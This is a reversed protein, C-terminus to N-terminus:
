GPHHRVAGLDLPEEHLRLALLYGLLVVVHDLYMLFVIAAIAGAPAYGGYARAVNGILRLALVYGLSQGALWSGASAAGVLLPGLRLPTSAFTRYVLCLVGTAGAWLVCFAVFVGLLRAGTGTGFTGELLPRLVTVALVVALATVLTLPITLLRGRLTRSRREPQRSFRELCRVTGEAYLSTPLVAVLVSWWSISTATRALTRVAVDIGLPGPLFRALQDGTSVVREPGFLAAGVRLGIALLPVFGLVAYATMAAAVLVLDSRQARM